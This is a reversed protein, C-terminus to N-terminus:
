PGNGTSADPQAGRVLIGDRVRGGSQVIVADGETVGDTLEVRDELVLGLRAQRARAHGQEVVFLNVIGDPPIEPVATRDLALVGRREETTLIVTTQLGPRLSPYASGLDLEVTTQHSVPDSSPYVRQVVARWRNHNLGAVDVAAVTGNSIRLALQEPVKAFVRLRSVDAITFLHTGAQIHDGPQVLRATVIGGIPSPFRTLALLTQLKGVAAQDYRHQAIAAQERKADTLRREALVAVRQREDESRALAAEAQEMDARLLRDDLAALPQDKEVRGGVEVLVERVVGDVQAAVKAEFAPAVVGTARYTQNLDTRTVKVTTVAVATEADPATPQSSAGSDRRVYPWAFLAATVAVLLLLPMRSLVSRMRISM